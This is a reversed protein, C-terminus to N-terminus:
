SFTYKTGATNLIFQGPMEKAFLTIAEFGTCHAPVIIEPNIGKIDAVTKQIVEPKANILHFGGIVAYVKDVGTKKQAHKVTNVIGSHACSSLIVLGKSKINFIMAQEGSFADVTYNDGNKLLLGPNPLEYDTVRAIDGSFYAGPIVETMKSVEKVDVLNLSELKSRNLFGIDLIKDTGAVRSYRQDFAGKGVYFPTGKRIKDKNSTLLDILGKWHDFHGHSLGIGSANGVDIGLANINNSIGKSDLGFDFLFSNSKGKVTTEIFLSLGHEAHLSANYSTRFRKAVPLDVRLGDYYNDTIFTITLKDVDSVNPVNKNIPEGNLLNLAMLAAGTTASRKLFERRTIKKSV